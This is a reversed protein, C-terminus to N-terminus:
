IQVRACAEERGAIAPSRRAGVSALTNPGREWLRDKTREILTCEVNKSMPSGRLASVKGAQTKDNTRAKMAIFSSSPTSPSGPQHPRLEAFYVTGDNIGRLLVDPSVLQDVGPNSLYRVFFGMAPKMLKATTVCDPCLPHSSVMYRSM